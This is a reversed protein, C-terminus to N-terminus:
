LFESDNAFVVRRNRSSVPFSLQVVKETSAIKNYELNQNYTHIIHTHMHMYYIYYIYELNLILLLKQKERLSHSRHQGKLVMVPFFHPTPGNIEPVNM